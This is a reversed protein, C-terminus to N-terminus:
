SRCRERGAALWLRGSRSALAAAVHEEGRVLALRSTEWNRAKGQRGEIMGCNFNGETKERCSNKKKKLCPSTQKRIPIGKKSKLCCSSRGTKEQQSPVQGLSSIKLAVSSIEGCSRKLGQGGNSWDVGCTGELIVIVMQQKPILCQSFVDNQM